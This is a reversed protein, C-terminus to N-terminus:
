RWYGGFYRNTSYRRGTWVTNPRLPRSWLYSRGMPYYYGSVWVFGTTPRPPVYYVPPPPPYYALPPPLPAAFYYGGPGYGPYGGINVGISFRPQAFAHAGALAMLILLQTKM